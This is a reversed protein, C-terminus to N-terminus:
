NHGGVVDWSVAACEIKHTTKPKSQFNNRNQIIIQTTKHNISPGLARRAWPILCGASNDIICLVINKVFLFM